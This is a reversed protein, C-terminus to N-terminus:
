GNAYWRLKFWIADEERKFHISYTWRSNAFHFDTCWRDYPPMPGFQEVCWPYVERAQEKSMGSFIFPYPDADDRGCQM